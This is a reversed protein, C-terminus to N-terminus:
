LYACHNDGVGSRVAVCNPLGPLRERKPPLIALTAVNGSMPNAIKAGLLPLTSNAIKAVELQCDQCGQAPPGDSRAVAPRVRRSKSVWLGTACLTLAILIILAILMESIEGQYDQGDGAGRRVPYSPPIRGM